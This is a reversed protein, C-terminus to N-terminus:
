FLSDLFTSRYIINMSIVNDYYYFIFYCALLAVYMFMKDKGKFLISILWPLLLLNYLGFYICFRAFIWNYSAFLMFIFNILSLNVIYDSKDWFERLKDRGIFSLALPVAAVVVRIINAGMDSQKLFDEYHSYQTNQLASFLIPTLQNFLLFGTSALVIIGNTVVSWSKRRVIFYIPIMVLASAHLMAALLTVIFYKICSGDLLFKTAAFIIAAALYQRMGNMSVLYCGTTIYLYMGLEFPDAYRYLVVFILINTILAAVFILLQPDPSINNLIIMFVNFGTDSRDFVREFSSGMTKYWVAYVGTDGINSRLGSVLVIVTLAFFAFVKDPKYYIPGETVPEFKHRALRSFAYVVVLTIWFITM